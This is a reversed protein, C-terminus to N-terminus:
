EKNTKNNTFLIIQDSTLGDFRDWDDAILEQDTKMIIRNCRGRLDREALQRDDLRVLILCRAGSKISGSHFAEQHVIRRRM